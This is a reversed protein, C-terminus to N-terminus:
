LFNLYYRYSHLSIHGEKEQPPHIACWKVKFHFGNASVSAIEATYPFRPKGLLKKKISGKQTAKM